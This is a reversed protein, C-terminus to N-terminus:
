AGGGGDCQYGGVFTGNPNTCIGTRGSGVNRECTGVEVVTAKLQIAGNVSNLSAYEVVAGGYGEVLGGNWQGTSFKQAWWGNQVEGTDALGYYHTDDYTLPANRPNTLGGVMTSYEDCSIIKRQIGAFSTVGQLSNFGYEQAQQQAPATMTATQGGYSKNAGSGTVASAVAGAAAGAVAGAAAQGLGSVGGSLASTIGETGPISRIPMGVCAPVMALSKYTLIMGLPCPGGFSQLAQAQAGGASLALALVAWKMSKM